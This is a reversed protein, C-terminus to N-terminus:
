SRLVNIICAVPRAVFVRIEKYINPTVSFWVEYSQSYLFLLANIKNTKFTYKFDYYLMLKITQKAM